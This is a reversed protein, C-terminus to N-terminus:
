ARLLYVCGNAHGEQPPRSPVAFAEPFGADLSLVRQHHAGAAAAALLQSAPSPAGHLIDDDEDALWADGTSSADSAVTKNDEDDVDVDSTEGLVDALKTLAGDRAKALASLM